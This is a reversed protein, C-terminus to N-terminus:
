LSDRWRYTNKILDEYQKSMAVGRRAMVVKAAEIAKKLKYVEEKETTLWRFCSVYRPMMGGGFFNVFSGIVAGTPILTGIGTKTHDGIFCGLKMMGSDKEKGDIRIRVSGYSNKLDSNTTLAGLNVWEGIFSHGIFGEHYKNAYGQFISAEVEGGIRCVAGISSKTIKAREVVTGPGIYSPGIITTFPRLVAGEDIFVPGDSLDIFVEKHLVAKKAACLNRKDGLIYVGKPIVGKEKLADFHHLLLTDNYKILDCIDNLLYGKIERSEKIRKFCDNIEKITEPFPPKQKIFGIVERNITFKVEKKSSKIRQLPLARASLYITPSAPKVKKLKFFSRGIFQTKVGPYYSVIHGAIDKMGIRLKFQPYLNVLPAFNGPHDEYIILKM